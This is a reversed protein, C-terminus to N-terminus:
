LRGEVKATIVDSQRPELLDDFLGRVPLLLMGLLRYLMLALSIVADDLSVDLFWGLLIFSQCYRLHLQGEKNLVSHDNSIM